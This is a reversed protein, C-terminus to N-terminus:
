HRGTHDGFHGFREARLETDPEYREAIHEGILRQQKSAVITM